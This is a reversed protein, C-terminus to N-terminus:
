SPASRAPSEDVPEAYYTTLTIKISAAVPVALLLGIVGFLVAGSLFAFIIVVPHLRAVQGLVLPGVLQDISVRLALVFVILGLIAFPGTQQAANLAVIGISVAPGILPVLELLGITVALLPARPLQYVVGLGIWAATTTYTVVVLLGVFYRWLLPLVKDVVAGVERRYEPPVLWLVGAAVAKGSVLFYLLLVLLLVAGFAAAVADSALSVLTGSGAAARLEDLVLLTVARSDIPHGVAQEAMGSFAGILNRLMQPFTQVVDAVDRALPGGVFYGLLGLASVAGAYVVVAGVWRPLRSLRQVLDVLPTLVFALAAALVFPLLIHRVFFLFVLIVAIGAALPWGGIKSRAATTRPVGHRGQLGATARGAL